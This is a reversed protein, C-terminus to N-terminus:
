KTQQRQFALSKLQLNLFIIRDGVCLKLVIIRFTINLEDQALVSSFSAKFKPLALKCM